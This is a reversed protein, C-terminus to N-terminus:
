EVMSEARWEFYSDDAQQEGISDFAELVEAQYTSNKTLAARTDTSLMANDANVISKINTIVGNLVSGQAQVIAPLDAAPPDDLATSVSRVRTADSSLQTRQTTTMEVEHISLRRMSDTLSDVNDSILRRRIVGSETARGRSTVVEARDDSFDGNRRNNNGQGDRIRQTARSQSRFALYGLAAILLAVGLTGLVAALTYAGRDAPGTGGGDDSATDVQGYLSYTGQRGSSGGSPYTISGFCESGVFSDNLTERTVTGFRIAASTSNGDATSWTLANNNYTPNAIAIGDYTVGSDTVV